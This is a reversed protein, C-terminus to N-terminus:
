ALSPRSKKLKELVCNKCYLRVENPLNEISPEDGKSCMKDICIQCIITEHKIEDDMDGIAKNEDLVHSCAM